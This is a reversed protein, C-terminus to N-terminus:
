TFEEKMSLQMTMSDILPAISTMCSFALAFLGLYIPFRATPFLDGLSMLAYFCGGCLALGIIPTRYLRFNDAWLGSVPGSFARLLLPLALIAGIQGASMGHVKLWLPMFPLSAGTGAFLLGYFVAQRRLTTLPFPTTVAPM